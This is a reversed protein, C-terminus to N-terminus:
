MLSCSCSISDSLELELSKYVPGTKTTVDGDVQLHPEYMKIELQDGKIRGDCSWTAAFARVKRTRAEEYAVSAEDGAELYCVLTDAFAPLALMMAALLIFAKFM